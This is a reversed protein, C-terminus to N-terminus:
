KKLEFNKQDLHIPKSDLSSGSGGLPNNNINNTGNLRRSNNLGSDGINGHHGSSPYTKEIYKLS